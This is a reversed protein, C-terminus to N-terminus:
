DNTAKIINLCINKLLFDYCSLKNKLEKLEATIKQHSSRKKLYMDRMNEQHTGQTLHAPNVCPGNDCSHLISLSNDIEGNHFWYSYRHALVSANKPKNVGPNCTQGIGFVYNAVKGNLIRLNFVGRGTGNLHGTWEWCENKGKKNVKSWFNETDKEICSEMTREKKVYRM